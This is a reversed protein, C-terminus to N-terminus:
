AMRRRFYNDGARGDRMIFKAHDKQFLKEDEQRLKMTLAVIEKCNNEIVVDQEFYTHHWSMCVKTFFEIATLAFMDHCSSQTRDKVM